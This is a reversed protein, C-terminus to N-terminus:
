EGFDPTVKAPTIVGGYHVTHAADFFQASLIGLDFFIEFKQAALEFGSVLRPPARGADRGCSPGFAGTFASSGGQRGAREARFCEFASTGFTSGALTGM